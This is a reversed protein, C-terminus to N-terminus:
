RNMTSVSTWEGSRGCTRRLLPEFYCVLATLDFLFAAYNFTIAIIGLKYMNLRKTPYLSIYVPTSTPSRSPFLGSPLGSHVLLILLANLFYSSFSHDPHITSLIYV